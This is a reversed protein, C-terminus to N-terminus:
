ITGKDQLVTPLRNNFYGKIQRTAQPLYSAVTAALRYAPPPPPQPGGTTDPRTETSSGRSGGSGGSGGKGRSHQRGASEAARRPQRGWVAAGSDARPRCRSARRGRRGAGGGMGTRPISGLLEGRGVEPTSRKGAGIM